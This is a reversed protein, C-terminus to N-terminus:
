EGYLGTCEQVVTLATPWTDLIFFKGNEWNFNLVESFLAPDATTNTLPTYFLSQLSDFAIAAIKM